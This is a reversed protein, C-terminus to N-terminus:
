AASAAVGPEAVAPRGLAPTEAAPAPAAATAPVFDEFDEARYWPLPPLEIPGALAAFTFGNAPEVWATGFSERWAAAKRLWLLWRQWVLSM